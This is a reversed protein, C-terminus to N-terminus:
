NKKKDDKKKEKKKYCVPISSNTNTAHTLCENCPDKGNVDDVELYECSACYLEFEVIKEIQEM